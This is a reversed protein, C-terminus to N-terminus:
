AAKRWNALKEYKLRNQQQRKLDLLVKVHEHCAADFIAQVEPLIAEPSAAHAKSM